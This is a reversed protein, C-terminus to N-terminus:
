IQCRCSVGIGKTSCWISFFQKYSGVPLSVLGRLQAGVWFNRYIGVKISYDIGWDILLVMNDIEKLGEAVCTQQETKKTMTWLICLKVLEKTRSGGM